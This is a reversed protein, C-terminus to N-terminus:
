VNCRHFKAAKANKWRSSLQISTPIDLCDIHVLTQRPSQCSPLSSPTHHGPPLSMSALFFRHPLCSRLSLHCSTTCITPSSFPLHSLSSPSHLVHTLSHFRYPLLPHPPCLLSFSHPVVIPRISTSGPYSAIHAHVYRPQSFRKSEEESKPGIHTEPQCM